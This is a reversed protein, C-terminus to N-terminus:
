GHTYLANSTLCPRVQHCRTVLRTRKLRTFMVVGAHSDSSSRKGYSQANRLPFMMLVCSYDALPTFFFVAAKTLMDTNRLTLWALMVCVSCSCPKPQYLHLSVNGRIFCRKVHPRFVCTANRELAVLACM